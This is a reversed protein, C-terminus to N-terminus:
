PNLASIGFFGLTARIYFLVADVALGTLILCLLGALLRSPWVSERPRAADSLESAIRSNSDLIGNDLM